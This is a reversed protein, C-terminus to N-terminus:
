INNLVDTISGELSDTQYSQMTLYSMFVHGNLHFIDEVIQHLSKDVDRKWVKKNLCAWVSEPTAEDYGLYSLENAKSNIISTLQDKWQSVPKEM